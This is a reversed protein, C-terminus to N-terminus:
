EPEWPAKWGGFATQEWSAQKMLEALELEMNTHMSKGLAYQESGISAADISSYVAQWRHPFRDMRLVMEVQLRNAGDTCLAAYTEAPQAFDPLALSLPVQVPTEATQPAAVQGENSTATSPEPRNSAGIEQKAEVAPPTESEQPREELLAEVGVASPVKATSKGGSPAKRPAPTPPDHAEIVPEMPPEKGAGESQLVQEPSPSSAEESVPRWPDSYCPSCLWGVTEVTPGHCIACRPPLAENGPGATLQHEELWALVEAVAPLLHAPPPDDHVLGVARARNTVDEAYETFQQKQQDSSDSAMGRLMWGPLSSTAIRAEAAGWIRLLDTAQEDPLDPWREHVWDTIPSLTGYTTVM